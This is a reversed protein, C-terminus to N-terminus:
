LDNIDRLYSRPKKKASEKFEGDGGLEIIEEGGGFSTERRALLDRDIEDLFMSSGFSAAGFGSSFPYSLYLLRKARTASVYFLRREEELGGEEALARRNPFDGDSLRILFVTDWELGKAQHITSLTIREAGSDAEARGRLVGFDDALGAEGLFAALEASKDAFLAMQELDDLREEANPYEAELYDKYWSATIARILVSPESGKVSKLKDFVSMIDRWGLVSKATLLDAFDTELAESFTKAGRLRETLREAGAAGIGQALSLVRMWSVEDKPNSYVRLFALVDKVHGREFFKLGGRYEYPIGRKVLEMELAQSHHTARFLVAIEHPAVGEKLLELIREAAFEAEERQDGAPVLTPKAFSSRAPRLRKSFQNANNIIISNAVDLIEPTSRYNTELKFIKAGPYRSPFELINKVTAARFSYISQADDGVVLINKHASGLADVIDGQIPNTDQYEDVLIYKFQRALRERVAANAKLLESLKLLLDDFDMLNSELKRRAFARSIDEIEPLFDFFKPYKAEVTEEISIKSNRSFSFINQLVAASPAMKGGADLNSNRVCIKILDRSDEQDLIVFKESYGLLRAFARLIRNAISHFTGGWIGSGEAGILKAVREMMENAAKNTFTLLLISSPHVGNQLLHAVRYTIVRTKGSGAGALVLCPGDGKRVAQLQEANLEREWNLNKNQIKM